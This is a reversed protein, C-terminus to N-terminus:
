PSIVEPVHAWIANRKILSITYKSVGYDSAIDLQKEGSRMRRRIEPIDDEHLKAQRVQSGRYTTAHRRRDYQNDGPTAWRLNGINNNLPNGDNHAAVASPFPPPGAFAALVIAHVRVTHAKADMMLSVHEYGKTLAAKLVAVKKGRVAGFSSVEYGSFGPVERWYETASWLSVMDSITVVSADIM